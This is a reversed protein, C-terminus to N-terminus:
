DGGGGGGLKQDTGEVKGWFFFRSPPPPPSSSPPIQEFLSQGNIVNKMNFFFGGFKEIKGLISRPVIQYAMDNNVSSEAVVAVM